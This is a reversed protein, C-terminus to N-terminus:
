FQFTTSFGVTSVAPLNFFDLGESGPMDYLLQRPDAGKYPSWLLLNNGSLSFSLQSAKSKLKPRWTISVTSIRIAGAKEIYDEAVGSPGYRVWRNQETPLSPDYFSVPVHNHAGGATVGSFVYGTVSRLEGSEASRGYYDLLARTGNWVQGGKRWEWDIFFSLLNKWSLRHSFKLTFDPAPDGIVSLSTNVLPFGDAGIIKEGAANRLWSTGRIVGPAYGPVLAKHVDRFGAVPTNAYGDKVALVKNRYRTFSITNNFSLKTSKTVWLRDYVQLEMEIGAARHDAMNTLAPRGGSLYPFVDNQNLRSFWTFFFSLKSYLMFEVGANTERHVVPQLGNFGSVEQLPLYQQADAVPYATLTYGAYSYHVSPENASVNYGGTFKVQTRELDFPSFITAYASIAPLFSRHRAATTSYYFKNGISIGAEVEKRRYEPLLFFSLDNTRRRYAFRSGNSLYAIRSQEDRLIHALSGSIKLNSGLYAQNLMVTSALTVSRDTTSRRLAAGAPFSATGPKYSEDYLRELTEASPTVRVQVKSKRYSLSLSSNKKIETFVHPDNDLLFFPHDADKSWSRQGNGATYGQHIDFSVPSLLSYQYARSILGTRNSQAFRQRQWNYAAGIEMNRFMSNNLVLSYSSFRNANMPVMTKESGDNGRLLLYMQRKYNHLLSAQLSASRTFLFGHRLFTNRYPAAAKGNGQAAPVLQGNVDWAYSSGDYALTRISPGFSFLENTHPGRWQLAGNEARGQVYEDQLAPLRSYRQWETLFTVSGNLAIYKNVYPVIQLEHDASTRIMKANNWHSFGNYPYLLRAQKMNHLTDAQQRGTDERILALYDNSIVPQVQQASCM